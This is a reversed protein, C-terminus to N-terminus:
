VFSYYYYHLVAILIPLSLFFMTTPSPCHSFLLTLLNFTELPDHSIPPLSGSLCSYHDSLSHYQYHLTQSHGHPSFTLISLPVLDSSSFLELLVSALNNFPDSIHRNFYYSHPSDCHDLLGIM